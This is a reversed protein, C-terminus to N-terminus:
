HAQHQQTQSPSRTYRRRHPSKPKNIHSMPENHHIHHKCHTIILSRWQRPLTTAFPTRSCAEDITTDTATAITTTTIPNTTTTTLTTAVRRPHPQRPATTTAIFSTHLHEITTCGVQATTSPLPSRYLAGSYQSCAFKIIYRYVTAFTSTIIWPTPGISCLATCPRYASQYHHVNTHATFPCNAHASRRDSGETQLASTRFPAAQGPFDLRLSTFHRQGIHHNRCQRNQIQPAGSPLRTITITQAATPVTTQRNLPVWSSARQRRRPIVGCGVAIDLDSIACSNPAAAAAAAAAITTTSTTSTTTITTSTTTITTSTTTITTTTAAAATQTAGTIILIRLRREKM